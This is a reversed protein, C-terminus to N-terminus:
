LVSQEEYDPFVWQTAAWFIEDSLGKVGRMLSEAEDELFHEM